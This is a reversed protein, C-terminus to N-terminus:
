PTPRCLTCMKFLSPYEQSHIHTHTHAMFLVIQNDKLIHNIVSILCFSDFHLGLSFSRIFSFYYWFVIFDSVLFNFFQIRVRLFRRFIRSFFCLLFINNWLRSNIWLCKPLNFMQHLNMKNKNISPRNEGRGCKCFGCPSFDRSLNYHVPLCFDVSIRASQINYEAAHVFDM